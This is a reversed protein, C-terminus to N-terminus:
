PRLREMEQQMEKKNDYPSPMRMDGHMIGGMMPPGMDPAIELMEKFKKRQDPTLKSKIEERAKIFSLHM